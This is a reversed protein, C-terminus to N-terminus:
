LATAVGVTQQADERLSRIAGGSGLVIRAGPLLRSGTRRPRDESSHQGRVLSASLRTHHGRFRQQKLGRIEDRLKEIRRDVYGRNALTINDLLNDIAAGADAKGPRV